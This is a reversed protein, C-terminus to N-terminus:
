NSMHLTHVSENQSFQVVAVDFVIWLRSHVSYLSLLIHYVYRLAFTVKSRWLALM